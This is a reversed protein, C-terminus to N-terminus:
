EIHQLLPDLRNTYAKAWELWDHHNMNLSESNIPAKEVLSLFERLQKAKMWQLYLSELHEIRQQEELQRQRRQEAELRKQEAAHAEQERRAREQKLYVAIKALEIMMTNLKEELKKKQTDSWNKKGSYWGLVSTELYLMGSPVYEYKPGWSYPSKDPLKDFRTAREMLSIKIEEGAYQIYTCVESWGSSYQSYNRRVTVTQGRTELAKILTHLLRAVRSAMAKSCSVNIKDEGYSHSRGFDDIGGNLLTQLTNKVLPHFKHVREPVIIQNKSQEEFAKVQVVLPDEASEKAAKRHVIGEVWFSAFRECQNSPKPLREKKVKHGRDLKQWYGRGPVPIELRACLKAFGRDSLGYKPGLQSIPKSWVKEYLDERSVYIHTM